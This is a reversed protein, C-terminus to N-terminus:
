KNEIYYIIIKEDNFKGPYKQKLEEYLSGKCM